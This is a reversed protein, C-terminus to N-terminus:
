KPVLSAFASRAGYKDESDVTEYLPGESIAFSNELGIDLHFWAMPEGITDLTLTTGVPLTCITKGTQWLSMEATTRVVHNVRRDGLWGYYDIVAPLLFVFLVFGCGTGGLFWFLNKM